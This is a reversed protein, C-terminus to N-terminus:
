TRCLQIHCQATGGFREVYAGRFLFFQRQQRTPRLRRLGCGHAGAYHQATIVAQAVASHGPLQIDGSGSYAFPALTKSDVPQFPQEILRPRASRARDAIGLDLRHDRLRQFRHGGVARVPARPQHRLLSPQRLSRNHADPAGKSELRVPHLVEFEGFVRLKDLLDPVDDPQIHIWRLVRHHQAHIFLALYLSQVARLRNQGQRWAHRGALGMVVFPMADSRQEGRQIHGGALREAVAMTAMPMLLEQLKQGPDIGGDGGVDLHMEHHVVVARVFDVFHPVPECAMGAIMHVESGGASAPQVQDLSEKGLDGLATNAAAAM